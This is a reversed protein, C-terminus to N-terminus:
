LTPFCDLFHNAYLHLRKRPWFHPPLAPLRHSPFADLFVADPRFSKSWSFTVYIKEELYNM